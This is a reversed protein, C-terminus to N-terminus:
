LISEFMIANNPEKSLEHYSDAMLTVEKFESQTRYHWRRNAENDVYTDKEGLIM